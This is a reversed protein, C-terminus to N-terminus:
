YVLEARIYFGGSYHDPEIEINKTPCEDIEDWVVILTSSPVQKLKEILEEATIKMIVEINYGYKLMNM